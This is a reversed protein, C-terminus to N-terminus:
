SATAETETEEKQILLALQEEAAAAKLQKLMKDIFSILFLAVVNVMIFLNPDGTNVNIKWTSLSIEFKFVFGETLNIGISLHIGSVYQFAYGVVAFSVAQLLQNVKSLKLGQVTNKFLLIGCYISYGYLAIAIFVLLLLLASLQSYTSFLWLTSLLGAAGGIIQYIALAKLKPPLNKNPTNMTYPAQHTKTIIIFICLTQQM